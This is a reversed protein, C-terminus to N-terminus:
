LDLGPGPAPGPSGPLGSGQLAFAVIMWLVIIALVVAVTTLAIVLPHPVAWPTGARAYQWSAQM